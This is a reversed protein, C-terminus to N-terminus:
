LLSHDLSCDSELSENRGEAGGISSPVFVEDCLWILLEESCCTTVAVTCAVSSLVDDFGDCCSVSGGSCSYRTRKKFTMAAPFSMCMPWIWRVIVVVGLSPIM